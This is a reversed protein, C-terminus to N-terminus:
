AVTENHAALAEAFGHPARGVRRGSTLVKVQSISIKKAGAASLRNWLDHDEGTQLDRWGGARLYADARMGLNAGHVHGHSGDPQILYTARFREKVIPLHEEFSDVDVIGAIADIHSGARALQKSLWDSPVVCDADTNALWCRNFPGRYRRLAAETAVARAGGVSGVNTCVVVGAGVEETAIRWTADTSSDVAVVLDAAASQPLQTVAQVVSRLCRRLYQEENCAPIIVSVHWASSSM